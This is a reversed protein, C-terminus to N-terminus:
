RWTTRWKKKKSCARSSNLESKSIGEVYFSQDAFGVSLQTIFMSLIGLTIFFDFVAQLTITVGLDQSCENLVGTKRLGMIKKWRSSRIMLKKMRGELASPDLLEAETMHSFSLM